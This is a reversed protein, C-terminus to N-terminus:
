VARMRLFAIAGSAIFFAALIALEGVDLGSGVWPEQLASVLRTMPLVRSISQMTDTMVEPPPGTGSLQWMPFFLGLGIAQASRATPMLVGLMVGIMVFSLTGILFAIIVGVVSAPAHIDYIAVAAIVLLIAGVTAIILGVILQALIVSEGRISSATFRRLIGRERYTALHVPVTVLSLAAIVTGLYGAVYYNAPTTGLWVEDAENGFVGALVLLVLIPFLFVFLLTFPERILLKLEVITLRTITRSM